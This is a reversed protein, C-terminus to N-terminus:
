HLGIASKIIGPQSCSREIENSYFLAFFVWSALKMKTLRLYQYITSALTKRALNQKM